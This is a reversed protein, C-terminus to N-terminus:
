TPLKIKRALYNNDKTSSIYEEMAEKQKPNVPPFRLFQTKQKKVAPTLIHHTKKSM